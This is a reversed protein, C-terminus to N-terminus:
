KHCHSRRFQGPLVILLCQTDQLLHQWLQGRLEFFLQNGSTTPQPGRLLILLLLHLPWSLHQCTPLLYPLGHPQVDRRRKPSQDEESNVARGRQSRGEEECRDGGRHEETPPCLHLLCASGCYLVSRSSGFLGFTRRSLCSILVSSTFSSLFFHKTIFLPSQSSQNMSHHSTALLSM